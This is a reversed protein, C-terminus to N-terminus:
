RVAHPPRARCKTMTGLKTGKDPNAKTRGASKGARRAKRVGAIEPNCREHGLPERNRLTRLREAHALRRDEYYNRRRSEGQSSKARTAELRTFSRWKSTYNSLRKLSTLPLRSTTM